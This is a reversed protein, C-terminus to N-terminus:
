RYTFIGRDPPRPKTMRCSPRWRTLSQLAPANIRCLDVHTLRRLHQAPRYGQVLRRDSPHTPSVSPKNSSFPYSASRAAALPAKHGTSANPPPDLGLASRRNRRTTGSCRGSGGAMLVNTPTPRSCSFFM